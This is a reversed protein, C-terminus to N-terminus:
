IKIAYLPHTLNEAAHLSTEGGFVERAGGQPLRTSLQKLTVGVGRPIAAHDGGVVHERDCSQVQFM